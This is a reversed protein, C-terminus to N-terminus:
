KAIVFQMVETNNSSKNGLYILLINDVIEFGTAKDLNTLFDNEIQMLSLDGGILTSISGSTKNLVGKVEDISLNGAYSNIFNRGSYAIKDNESNGFLITVKDENKKDIKNIKYNNFLWKSGNLTSMAKKMQSYNLVQSSPPTSPEISDNNCSYLNLTLLLGLTSITTRNNM